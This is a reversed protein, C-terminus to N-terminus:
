IKLALPEKNTIKTQVAPATCNTYYLLHIVGFLAGISAVCVHLVHKSICKLSDTIKRM